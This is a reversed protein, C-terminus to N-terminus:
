YGGLCKKLVFVCKKINDGYVNYTEDLIIISNHSQKLIIKLVILKILNSGGTTNIAM